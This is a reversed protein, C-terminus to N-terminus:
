FEYKATLDFVGETYNKANLTVNSGSSITTVKLNNESHSKGNLGLNISLKPSAQFILDTGILFTNNSDVATKYDGVTNTSNTESEFGIATNLNVSFVPGVVWQWSFNVDINTHADTETIENSNTADESKEKGYLSVLAGLKWGMDSYKKGIDFGISYLSNGRYANGDKSTSAEKRNGLSPSLSLSLDGNLGSDSQSLIRYKFGIIPDQFGNYKYNSVTNPSTSAPGDIFKEKDSLLQSLKLNVSLKDSISYGVTQILSTMDAKANKYNRGNYEIDAEYSSFSLTSTGWITKAQPLYMLDNLNSENKLSWDAHASISTLAVTALLIKKM